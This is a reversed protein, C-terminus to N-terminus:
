HRAPLCLQSCIANSFTANAPSPLAAFFVPITLPSFSVTAQECEDEGWRATPVSPRLHALTGAAAGGPESADVVAELAVGDILDYLQDVKM